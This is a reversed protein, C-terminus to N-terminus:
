ARRGTARKRKRRLERRFREVDAADAYWKGELEEGQLRHKSILRVLKERSLGLSLAAQSATISGSTRAM